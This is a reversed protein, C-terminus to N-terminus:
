EDVNWKPKGSQDRLELTKGEFEIQSAIIVDRGNVQAKSGTYEIRDGSHVSQGVQAVEGNVKVVGQAIREELARRSGLGAQALVKHLREEAKPAIEEGERKLSLTKRNNDGTEKSM